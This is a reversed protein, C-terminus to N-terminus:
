HTIVQLLFNTAFTLPLFIGSNLQSIEHKFNPTHLYHPPPFLALLHLLHKLYM